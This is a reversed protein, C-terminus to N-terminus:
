RHDGHERFLIGANLMQSIADTIQADALGARGLAWYVKTLTEEDHFELQEPPCNSPEGCVSGDVCPSRHAHARLTDVETMPQPDLADAIRHIQAALDSLELEIQITRKVAPPDLPAAQCRCNVHRTLENMEKEKEPM